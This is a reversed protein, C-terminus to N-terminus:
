RGNGKWGVPLMAAGVGEVGRETALLNYAAAANGTDMIDVRLGLEGQLYERTAKSIPWVGRGTGLILLDPKPYLLRLVGWAGEAAIELTGLPSLLDSILGERSVVASGGGSSSSPAEWPRWAWAEGGLLM